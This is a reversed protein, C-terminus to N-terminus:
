YSCPGYLPGNLPGFELQDIEKRYVVHNKIDNMNKLEQISSEMERRLVQFDQRLQNVENSTSSKPTIVPEEEKPKEEEPLPEILNFRLYANEGRKDILTV